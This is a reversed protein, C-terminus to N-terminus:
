HSRNIVIRGRSLITQVNWGKSLYRELGKEDVVKGPARKVRRLKNVEIKALGLEERIIRGIAEEETLESEKEQIEAIKVEINKIGLAHM